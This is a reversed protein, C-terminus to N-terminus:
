RILQVFFNLLIAIFLIISVVLQAGEKRKAKTKEETLQDIRKWLEACNPCRSEKETEM